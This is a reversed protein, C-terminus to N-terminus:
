LDWFFNSRGSIQGGNQAGTISKMKKRPFSNIIHTPPPHTQPPQAPGLHIPPPPDKAMTCMRRRCCSSRSEAEATHGGGMAGGGGAGSGGLGSGPSETHRELITKLMRQMGIDCHIGCVMGGFGVSCWSNQGETNHKLPHCLLCRWGGIAMTNRQQRCCHFVSREFPVKTRM